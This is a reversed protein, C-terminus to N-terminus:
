KQLMPAYTKWDREWIKGFEDAPLYTLASVTKVAREQFAPDNAVADFAAKLTELVDDPVGKAVALGVFPSGYVEYGQEKATPIDPFAPDRDASFVALGRMKGGKLSSAVTAANAPLLDIDGALLATAGPAGGQQPLHVVDLGAADALARMTLHPAVDPVAGFLYKGPEAKAAEIFDDLTQWPSDERVALILSAAVLQGIPEFDDYRYGVDNKLPTLIHNGSTTALITYGDKPADLAAQTGLSGGGGPMNTVAIPVGLEKSLPEALLRALVDTSGGANWTVIMSIPKEPYDDAAALGTAMALAGIVGALKVTLKM